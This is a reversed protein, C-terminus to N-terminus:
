FDILLGKKVGIRKHLLKISTYRTAIAGHPPKKGLLGSTTVWIKPDYVLINLLFIVAVRPYWELLNSRFKLFNTSTIRISSAVLSPAFTQKNSRFNLAIM